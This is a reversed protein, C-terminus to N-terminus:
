PWSMSSSTVGQSAPSAHVTDSSSPRSKTPRAASSLCFAPPTGRSSIPTTSSSLPTSRWPWRTTVPAPSPSIREPMKEGVSPLAMAKARTGAPARSPRRTSMRPRSNGSRTTFYGKTRSPWGHSPMQGAAGNGHNTSADNEPGTSTALIVPRGFLWPCTDHALNGTVEFELFRMFPHPDLFAPARADANGIVGLAQQAVQDIDFQGLDAVLDLRACTAGHDLRHLRRRIHVCRDAALHDLDVFAEGVFRFGDIFIREAVAPQEDDLKGIRVFHICQETGVVVLFQDLVVLMSADPRRRACRLRRTSPRTGRLIPCQAFFIEGAPKDMM